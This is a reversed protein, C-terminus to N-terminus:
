RLDEVPVWYHPQGNIISRYITPTNKIELLRYYIRSLDALIFDYEEKPVSKNSTLDKLTRGYYYPGTETLGEILSLIQRYGLSNFSRTIKEHPDYPSLVNDKEIRFVSPKKALLVQSFANRDPNQTLYLENLKGFMVCLDDFEQEDFLAVEKFFSHGKELRKVETNRFFEPYVSSISGYASAKEGIKNFVNDLLSSFEEETMIGGNVSVETDYVASDYGHASFTTVTSEWEGENERVSLVPVQLRSQITAQIIDSMLYNFMRYANTGDNNQVQLAYVSFNKDSLMERVDDPSIGDSSDGRGGIVIIVNEEDATCEASEVNSKLASLLPAESLNDRFGYEGGQDIFDYLEQNSPDTLQIKEIMYENNRSDHYITAGVKIKGAKGGTNGLLAVREAVLPFFPEYLRSGDMVFLININPSEDNDEIEVTVPIKKSTEKLFKSRGSIACAYSDEAAEIVPFRWLGKKMRYVDQDAMAVNSEDSFKISGLVRGNTSMLNCHVSNQAFYSYDTIDWTPEIASRGRWIILSSAAVWGYINERNSIQHHTALLYMGQEEKVVYFYSNIKNPLDIPGFRDTPSEYLKATLVTHAAYEMDDKLLARIYVGNQDILAHDYYLLNSMPIWGKWEPNRPLAPYSEPSDEPVTYVLAMGRRITAIRVKERFSLSTFKQKAAPATYTPNDNRDSYVDWYGYFPRTSQQGYLDKAFNDLSAQDNGLFAYFPKQVDCTKPLGKLPSKAIALSCLSFLVISVFLRKKM